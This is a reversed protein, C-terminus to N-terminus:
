ATCASRCFSQLSIVCGSRCSAILSLWHNRACGENANLLGRKAVGASAVFTDLGGTVNFISMAGCPATM